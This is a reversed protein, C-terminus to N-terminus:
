RCLILCLSSVVNKALPPLGNLTGKTQVAWVLKFYHYFITKCSALAMSSTVASRSRPYCGIDTVNTQVLAGKKGRLFFQFQTRVTFVRTHLFVLSATIAGVTPRVFDPTPRNTQHQHTQCFDSTLRQSSTKV